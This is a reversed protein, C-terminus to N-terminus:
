SNADHTSVVEHLIIKLPGGDTGSVEHKDSVKGFRRDTLEKAAQVDGAKARAAMTRFITIFDDDNVAADLLRALRNEEDKRKRGAGQRAGGNKARGDAM